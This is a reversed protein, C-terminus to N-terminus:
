RCFSSARPGALLQGKWLEVASQTYVQLKTKKTYFKLIPFSHWNDFRPDFFDWSNGQLHLNTSFNFYLLLQFPVSQNFSSTGFCTKKGGKNFFLVALM